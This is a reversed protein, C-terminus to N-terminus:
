QASHGLSGIPGDAAAATEAASVLEDAIRERANVPCSPRMAPESPEAISGIM